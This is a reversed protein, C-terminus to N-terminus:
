PITKRQISFIDNTTKCLLTKMIRLKRMREFLNEQKRDKEKVYVTKLIEMENRFIRPFSPNTSEWDVWWGGEAAVWWGGEAAPVVSSYKICYLYQQCNQVTFDQHYQSTQDKGILKTKKEVCVNELIKKDKTCVNKKLKKEGFESFLVLGVDFAIFVNVFFM